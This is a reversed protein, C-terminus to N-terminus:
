PLIDGAVLPVGVLDADDPVVFEFRTADIPENVRVDYLAVLTTQELNDFFVMRSLQGEAFGLELRSFGSDPDVPMLRVWTTGAEIMSGDIEFQQLAEAAGGLLLAPTNTLAEAQPKVTVQALDVDYSWINRGDAVLWQEYPDAYTWRFRGPREIELRGNSVEVVTGEADILKQEFRGEFTIVNTLFDKVLAEGDADASSNALAGVSAGALFFAM